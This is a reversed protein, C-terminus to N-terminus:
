NTNRHIVVQEELAVCPECGTLVGRPDGRSCAKEGDKTSGLCEATGRNFSKVGLLM